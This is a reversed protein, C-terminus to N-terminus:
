WDTLVTIGLMLDLRPQLTNIFVGTKNFRVSHEAKSFPFLSFLAAEIGYIAGDSRPTLFYWRLGTQMALTFYQLSSRPSLMEKSNVFQMAQVGAGIGAYFELYGFWNLNLTPRLHLMGLWSSEVKRALANGDFLDPDGYQDRVTILSFDMPINNALRFLFAFRDLSLSSNGLGFMLSHSFDPEVFKRKNQLFAWSLELSGFGFPYILQSDPNPNNLSGFSIDLRRQYLGVRSSFALWLATRADSWVGEIQGEQGYGQYYSLKYLYLDFQLYQNGSNFSVACAM